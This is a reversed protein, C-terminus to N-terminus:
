LEVEAKIARTATNKKNGDQTESLTQWTKAEIQM